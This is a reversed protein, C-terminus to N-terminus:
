RRKRSLFLHTKLILVCSAGHTIEGRLVSELAEEFPMTVIEIDEGADPRRSTESLDRALFMQNPSKVVTTFPNILGM